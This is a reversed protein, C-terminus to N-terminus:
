YDIGTFKSNIKRSCFINQSIFNLLEIIGIMLVNFALFYVNLKLIFVNPSVADNFFLSVIGSSFTSFLPNRRTFVSM